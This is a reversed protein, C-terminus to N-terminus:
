DRILPSLGDIGALESDRRIMLRSSSGIALPGVYPTRCAQAMLQSM